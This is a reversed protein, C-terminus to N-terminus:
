LSGLYAAVENQGMSIAMDYATRGDLDVIKTSANKEVLLKVIKLFGEAAAYHLPSSPYLFIWSWRFSNM